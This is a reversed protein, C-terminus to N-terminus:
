YIRDNANLRRGSPSGANLSGFTPTLTHCNYCLVELNDRLNNKWDGDIHNITLITDGVLPNVECWGCKSCKNESDDLMYQRIQQPMAGNSYIWNEGALWENIAAERKLLNAKRRSDYFCSRGCFRGPKGRTRYSSGCGECVFMTKPRLSNTYTASCSSSCFQQSKKKNYFTSGCQKCTLMTRSEIRYNRFCEASCFRGVTKPKPKFTSQCHECINMSLTYWPIHRFAVRVWNSVDGHVGSTM